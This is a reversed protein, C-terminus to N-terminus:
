EGHTEHVIVSVHEREQGYLTAYFTEKKIEDDSDNELCCHHQLADLFYKQIISLVNMKDVKRKGKKYIVYSIRVPAKMRIGDLQDAIADYFAKKCQNEVFSNLNRYVNLNLRIKKDEKTKRPLTVEM